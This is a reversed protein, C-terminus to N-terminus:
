YSGRIATCLIEIGGIIGSAADRTVGLEEFFHMFLSDHDLLVECTETLSFDFLGCVVFEADNFVLHSDSVKGVAKHCQCCYM